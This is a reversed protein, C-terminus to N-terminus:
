YDHNQKEIKTKQIHVQFILLQTKKNNESKTLIKSVFIGFKYFNGNWWLLGDFFSWKELIGQYKIVFKSIKAM